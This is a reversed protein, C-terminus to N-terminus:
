RPVVLAKALLLFRYCSVLFPVHAPASKPHSARPARTGNVHSSVNRGFATMVRTLLGGVPWGGMEAVKLL